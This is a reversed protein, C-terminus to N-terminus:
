QGHAVLGAQILRNDGAAVGAWADELRQVMAASGEIGAFLFMLSQTAVLEPGEDFNVSVV